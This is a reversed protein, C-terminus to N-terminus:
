GFDPGLRGLPPKRRVKGIDTSRRATRGSRTAIQAGGRGISAGGGTRDSETTRTKLTSSWRMAGATRRARAHSESASEGTVVGEVM